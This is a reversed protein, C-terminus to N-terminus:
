VDALALASIEWVSSVGDAMCTTLERNYYSHSQSSPLKLTSMLIEDKSQIEQPELM